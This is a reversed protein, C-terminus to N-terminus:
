SECANDHMEEPTPELTFEAWRDCVQRHCDPPAIALNRLWTVQPHGGNSILLLLDRDPPYTQVAAILREIRDGPLGQCRLYATAEVLPIFRLSYRVVERRWDLGALKGMVECAVMGRGQNTYGAWAAHGLPLLYERIFLPQWCGSRGQWLDTPPQM